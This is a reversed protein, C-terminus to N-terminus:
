EGLPAGRRMMGFVQPSTAEPVCRVAKGLAATGRPPAGVALKQRCVGAQGKLRPELALGEPDDERVRSGKELLFLGSLGPHEEQSVRGNASVESCRLSKLHLSHHRVRRHSWGRGEGLVEWAGLLRKPFSDLARTNSIFFTSASGYSSAQLAMALGCNFGWRRSVPSLSDSNWGRVLRAIRLSSFGVHKRPM